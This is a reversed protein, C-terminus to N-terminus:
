LQSCLKCTALGQFHRRRQVIPIIPSGPFARASGLTDVSHHQGLRAAHSALAKPRTSAAATWGYGRKLASIRGECGTRWKLHRRFARRHEYAQRAKSARGKHPIVGNQVGLDHLDDEVSQQSYGREAAV